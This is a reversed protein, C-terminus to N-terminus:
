NRHFVIEDAEGAPAVVECEGIVGDGLESRVVAKASLIDVRESARSHLGEAAVTM